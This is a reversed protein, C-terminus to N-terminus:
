PNTPLEVFSLGARAPPFLASHSNPDVRQRLFELDVALLQDVQARAGADLVLAGRERAHGVLLDRLELLEDRAARLGGILPGRHLLRWGARHARGGASRQLSLIVDGRRARGLALRRLDGRRLRGLRLRPRRNARTAVTGFGDGTRGEFQCRHRSRPPRRDRGPRARLLRGSLLGVDLEREVRDATGLGPARLRQGVVHPLVLLLPLGVTLPRPEAPQQTAPARSHGRHRRRELGADPRASLGSLRPAALGVVQEAAAFLPLEVALLGTVAPAAVVVIAPQAAAPGGAGALARRDGRGCRSLGVGRDLDRAVDPGERLRDAQGRAVHQLLEEREAHVRNGAHSRHEVAVRDFQQRRLEAHLEVDLGGLIQLLIQQGATTVNRPCTSWPLVDSRSLIRPISTAERSLPPM